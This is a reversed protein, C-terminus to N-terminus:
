EAPQLCQNVWRQILNGFLCLQTNHVELQLNISLGPQENSTPAHICRPGLSQESTRLEHANRTEKGKKFRDLLLLM